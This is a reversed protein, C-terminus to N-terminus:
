PVGPLEWRLADFRAFDRDFSVWVAGQEIATAAHAVDSVLNGAARQERCLRSFLKWNQPGPEVRIVNPASLLTEVFGIAEETSSPEVFIRRNTVVRVSGAAVASTIGVVDESELAGELWARAVEHQPADRRIAAVLVNVDPMKM